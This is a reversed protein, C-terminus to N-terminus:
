GAATFYKALLSLLRLRFVTRMKGNAFGVAVAPVVKVTCSGELVKHSMLDNASCAVPLVVVVAVEPL